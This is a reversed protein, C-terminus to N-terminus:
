LDSTPPFLVFFVSLLIFPFIQWAIPTILRFSISLQSFFKFVELHTITLKWDCISLLWICYKQLCNRLLFAPLLQHCYCPSQIQLRLFFVGWQLNKPQIKVIFLILLFFCFLLFSCISSTSISCSFSQWIKWDCYLSLVLCYM